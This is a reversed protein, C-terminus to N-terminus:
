VLSLLCPVWLMADQGIAASGPRGGDWAGLLDLTLHTPHPEVVQEVPLIMEVAVVQRFRLDQTAGDTRVASVGPVDAEEPCMGLGDMVM